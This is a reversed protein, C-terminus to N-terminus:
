SPRPQHQQQQQQQKQAQKARVVLWEMASKIGEGTTANAFQVLVTTGTTTTTTTTGTSTTTNSADHRLITDTAYLVDPECHMPPRPQMLNGLVLIPCDVSARVTQFISRQRELEENNLTGTSSSSSGVNGSPPSLKWVFLVADADNYYREWLDVLRGGLDWIHVTSKAISLKALNMGITPRIKVLPLMSKGPILDFQLLPEVNVVPAMDDNDYGGAVVAGAAGDADDDDDKDDDNVNNDVSGQNKNHHLSTATTNHTATAATTELLVNHRKAPVIAVTTTTNAAAAALSSAGRRFPRQQAVSKNNITNEAAAAANNKEETNNDDLDIEDYLDDDIFIIDSSRNMMHNLNRDSSRHNNNLSQIMPSTAPDTGGVGLLGVAMSKMVYKPPPPCIWAFRSRPRVEGHNTEGPRPRRQPRRHHPKYDDPHTRSFIKSRLPETMNHHHHHHDSSLSSSSSSPGFDTVKLREMVTTKGAGPIGIVLINVQTSSL